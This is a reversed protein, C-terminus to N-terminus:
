GHNDQPNSNVGACNLCYDIRGFTSVMLAAATKVSTEKTIDIVAAEVRFKPNTAVEKCTAAVTGASSVNLDAILIGAAGDKAFSLACAM